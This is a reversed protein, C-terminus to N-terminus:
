FEDPKISLTEKIRLRYGHPDSIAFKQLIMALALKAEVM